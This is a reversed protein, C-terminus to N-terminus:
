YNIRRRLADSQVITVRQRGLLILGAEQFRRLCQNVSERTAGVMSGLDAQSLVLEIRRGEETDVGHSQALELLRKAIRADLNLFVIDSVETTLRRIQGALVGFIQRTVTPFRDIIAFFDERALNLTQCAEMAQVDASRPMDDFLALEGFFEGPGMVALLAEQGQESVSVIKVRGSEIICLSRGPDGEHFIVEGPGYRRRRVKGAIANVVSAPLNNFLPVSM